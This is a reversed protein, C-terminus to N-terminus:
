GKFCKEAKFFTLGHGYARFSTCFAIFARFRGIKVMHGRYNEVHLLSLGVQKAYLYVDIRSMNDYRYARFRRFWVM